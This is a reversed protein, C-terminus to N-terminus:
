PKKSVQEFYYSLAQTQGKEKALKGLGWDPHADLYQMDIVLLATREPEPVYDPAPSLLWDLPIGSVPKGRGQQAGRERSQKKM